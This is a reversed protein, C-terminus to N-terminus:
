SLRCRCAYRAASRLRRSGAVSLRSRASLDRLVKFFLVVSSCGALVAGVLSTRKAAGATGGSRGAARRLRAIAVVSPAM